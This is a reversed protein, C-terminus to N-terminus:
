SSTEKSDRKQRTYGTPLEKLNVTIGSEGSTTTKCIGLPKAGSLELELARQAMFFASLKHLDQKSLRDLGPGLSEIRQLWQEDM